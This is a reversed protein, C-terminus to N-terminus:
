GVPSAGLRTACSYLVAGCFNQHICDNSNSVKECCAWYVNGEPCYWCWINSASCTGRCTGTPTYCLNCCHWPVTAFAPQALGFLGLIVSAITTAGRRLFTRRDLNRALMRVLEDSM